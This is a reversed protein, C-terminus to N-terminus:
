AVRGRRGLRGRRPRPGGCPGARGAPLRLPAAEPVARAECACVCVIVVIVCGLAARSHGRGATVAPPSTPPPAWRLLPSAPCVRRRAAGASPRRSARPPAQSCPSPLRSCYCRALFPLIPELELGPAPQAGGFAGELGEGGGGMLHRRPSAGGSAFVASPREWLMPVTSLRLCVIM